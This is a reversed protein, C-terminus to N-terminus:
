SKSVRFFDENKLHGVNYNGLGDLLVSPHNISCKFGTSSPGSYALFSDDLLFLLGVSKLSACLHLPAAPM